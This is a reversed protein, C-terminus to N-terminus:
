RWVHCRGSSTAAVLVPLSPHCAARSPIATMFDSTLTRLLQGVHEGAAAGKAAGHGQKKHGQPQSADRGSEGAGAADSLLPASIVDLGRRMNGVLIADYSSGWVARFPTIWRGTQNNHPISLVQQMHGGAGGAAASTAASSTDAWVRLTDDYSTSLLRMSGDGAWYAAHCSKGHRLESLPKLGRHGGGLRQQDGRSGGGRGARAAAATSGLRRVDWVCVSGDSCSSALLHERCPELHLSNIKRDCLHLGGIPGVPEEKQAQQEQQQQPPLQHQQQRTRSSPPPPARLDVVEVNGLPDGLFATRGDSTVELASFEAGDRPDGPAPLQLWTGAGGLDLARLSGDYSATILRSPGVAAGRGLWRMGSVYEGHPTFMFVGDTEAAASEEAVDVDWLSVKGAKDCAALLLRESGPLWCLHTIGDKTVKAVDREALHLGALATGAAGRHGKLHGMPREKGEEDAKEDASGTKEGAAAASPSSSSGGVAAATKLLELFAADSDETGNDSRFPLEGQPHRFKEGTAADGGLAAAEAAQRGAVLQVGAATEVDIGASLASDAKVGRQRLSMRRPPPADEQSGERSRKSGVGRQSAQRRQHQHGVSGDSRGGGASGAKTAARLEAVLGPLQLEMLMRRNREMIEARERDLDEVVDRDEAAATPPKPAAAAAAAAVASHQSGGFGSSSDKRSAEKVAGSPGATAVPIDAAAAAQDGDAGKGHRTSRRPPLPPRGAGAKKVARAEGAAASKVPPPLPVRRTAGGGGDLLVSADSVAAAASYGGGPSFNDDADEDCEPSDSGSENDGTDGEDALASATATGAQLLATRAATRHSEPLEDLGRIGLLAESTAGLGVTRLVPKLLALGASLKVPLATAHENSSGGVSATTPASAVATAPLLLVVDDPHLTAGSAACKPIQLTTVTNAASISRNRTRRAVRQPTAASGTDSINGNFLPSFAPVNRALAISLSQLFAGPEYYTTTGGRQGGAVISVAYEGATIPSGSTACVANKRIRKCQLLMTM